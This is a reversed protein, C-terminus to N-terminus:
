DSGLSKNKTVLHSADAENSMMAISERANEDTASREKRLSYTDIVIACGPASLDPQVPLHFLCISGLAVQKRHPFLRLDPLLDVSSQLVLAPVSVRQNDSTDRSM